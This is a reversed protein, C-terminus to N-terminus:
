DSNGQWISLLDVSLNVFQIVSTSYTQLDGGADLMEPYSYELMWNRIKLRHPLETGAGFQRVIQQAEVIEPGNMGDAIKARKASLREWARKVELGWKQWGM